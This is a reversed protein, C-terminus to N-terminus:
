VVSGFQLGYWHAYRGDVEALLAEHRGQEVIRGEDLVLIRDANVVTSLRHAIVFSTRGRMLRELAEQVLAESESDLSSTAEDLILLRPNKLLARAIAVRQRQGGSLKVGREGVMTEYGDPLENEIFQHANAAKAAAVVEEDTAELRGYRINAAVTDSFLTTEQPVIGIQHRWAIVDLDRVDRGDVLIAGEDVDYFRPILNVLTSKGAGSAGVLAILEGAKAEFDIGRLVAVKESYAFHVDKFRISGKFDTVKHAEPRNVITAPTDLLEFMRESAGVAGQFRGYLNALNAVPSAVLMTYFLYAVLEGSTLRGNIVEVSGFWLTLGISFFAMFGIFPSLVAVIWAREMAAEFIKDVETTFRKLEYAERTFSKVIRIGSVSEEVVNALLALAEQVQRSANRIKQGLYVMTLSILPIGLLIILTLRVNLYFLLISAGLLTLVHRLLAIVDSTIVSQLLVVDNTIRSMIEGTRNDAYFTLSLTQLHAYLQTRLNAVIREGVYSLNWRNVFSFFAQLVFVVLLLGALRNLAEFDKNLLVIDVLNRVVLPLVLGLGVTCLLAVTAIIMRGRYAYTYRLLRRYVALTERNIPVKPSATEQEHRRGVRRLGM